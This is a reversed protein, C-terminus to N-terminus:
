FGTADGAVPRGGSGVPAFGQRVFGDGVLPARAPPPKEASGLELDFVIGCLAAPNLTLVIEASVDNVGKVRTVVAVQDGVEQNTM